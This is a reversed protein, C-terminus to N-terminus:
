SLPYLKLYLQLCNCMGSVWSGVVAEVTDTEPGMRARLLYYFVMFIILKESRPWFQQARKVMFCTEGSARTKM